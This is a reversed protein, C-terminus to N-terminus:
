IRQREPTDPPEPRPQGTELRAGRGTGLRAPASHILRAAPYSHQDSERRDRGDGRAPVGTAAPAQRPPTTPSASPRRDRPGRGPMRWARDGLMAMAAPLLVGRVLTADILIAVAMGVGLMKYEISNLVVFVSFVATMIVAASTVVGASTGVGEVIATRAGAGGSWHERIRSLVFIHYDMSLGFLLVFMFLPLWGVVGGYSTFGLLSELNGDQFVWTLVGCAAGVSLLNLLISVLPIALSRFAVGLLVFSLVLVSGFVLPMTDRVRETFDFAFATKGSVAYEVGPVQGVTAPLVEGRLLELAENSLPDTGEGALPLRVLMANDVRTVSLPEALLGDSAAVRSRLNDIAEALAPDTVNGWIVVKAPAPAGPFAEQMRIAGDVAAVDRPLSNIPGADQLRIGSAPLTLVVLTLTAIGGWLLPRRVVTRAVASWARSERATTRRRGLWPVRAREIRSGLLSLTAPLATVSGVVALGVVMATGVTLGRFNDLGTFLLGSLCLMVTLGSVVVARGSTRAAIRLAQELDRGAAREERERRLYFLSYDTGVAVGILLIMSSAASNVPIWKGVTTMLGFAALMTTGALLLPVSAAVLSGFVVLLIVATIPLSFTEARQFDEQISDDVADNLSRDGAQVIRVDLHRAAVADVATAAANYHETMQDNPGAVFFSVLGSRADESIQEATDLPSRLGQVAGPTGNLTAVLDTAAARLAPSDAFAPGGADRAQILVNELAPEYSEQDRIVQQAQGSEGPDHARADDGPILGSSAVALVVLVLWGVVVRARHRISWAAVREVLPARVPDGWGEHDPPSHNAEGMM